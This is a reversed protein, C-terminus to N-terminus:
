GGEKTTLAALRARIANCRDCRPDGCCECHDVAERLLTATADLFTSRLRENEAVAEALQTRASRCGAEWSEARDRAEALQIELALVRRALSQAEKSPWDEHGVGDAVGDGWPEIRVMGEEAVEAVRERTLGDTPDAM